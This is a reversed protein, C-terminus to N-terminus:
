SPRPPAPPCFPPHRGHRELAECVKNLLAFKICAGLSKFGFDRWAGHLCDRISSPLARADTVAIDGPIDGGLVVTRGGPPFVSCDTPGPLPDGGPPFTVDPEGRQEVWEFTDGPGPGLDVVKIWGAVWYVTLPLLNSFVDNGFGIIATNGSVSLCTVEGRWTPGLGGGFHWTVTGVPNEGSPGSAADLQFAYPYGALSTVSDQTPAQAASAGPMVLAALATIAIAALPRRIRDGKGM